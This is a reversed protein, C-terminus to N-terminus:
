LILGVLRAIRLAGYRRANVVQRVSNGELAGLMLRILFIGAFTPLVYILNCWLAAQM